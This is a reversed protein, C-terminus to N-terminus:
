EVTFGEHFTAYVVDTEATVAHRSDASRLIEDGAELVEGSSFRLRGELVFTLERGHHVHQPFAAGADFRVFGTDAHALAPGAEFHVFRVGPVGTEQWELGPERLWRLRERMLEPSLDMREALRAVFPGYREPGELATLLRSRGAGGAPESAPEAAWLLETLSQLEAQLEPDQSLAAEVRAAEEEDLIGLAHSALLEHDIAGGNM